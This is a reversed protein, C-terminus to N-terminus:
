LFYLVEPLAKQVQQKHQYRRRQSNKIDTLLEHKVEAPLSKFEESEIDVMDPAEFM